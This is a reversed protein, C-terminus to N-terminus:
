KDWSRRRGYMEKNEVEENNLLQQQFVRKSLRRSERKEQLKAAKKDARAQKDLGMIMGLSFARSNKLSWPKRILM